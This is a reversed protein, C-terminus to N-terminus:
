ANKLLAGHVDGETTEDEVPRGALEQAAPLLSV